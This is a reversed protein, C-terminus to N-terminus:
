SPYEKMVQEIAFMRYSAIVGWVNVMRNALECNVRRWANVTRWAEKGVGVGGVGVGAGNMENGNSITDSGDCGSQMEEMERLLVEVLSLVLNGIAACYGILPHLDSAEHKSSKLLVRSMQGMCVASRLAINLHRTDMQHLHKLKNLLRNQDQPQHHQQEHQQQRPEHHHQYSQHEQQNKQQYQHQQQQYQQPQQTPHASPNRADLPSRRRPKQSKAHRSGMSGTSGLTTSAMSLGDNGPSVRLGMLGTNSFLDDGVRAGTLGGNAGFRYYPDDYRQDLGPPLSAVGTSSGTEMSTSLNWGRMVIWSSAWEDRGSASGEFSVSRDEMETGFGYSFPKPIITQEFEPMELPQARDDYATGVEPVEEEVQQEEPQRDLGGSVMGGIAGEGVELGNNGGQQQHQQQQQGEGAEKGPKVRLSELFEPHVVHPLLAVCVGTHYVYTVLCLRLPVDEMHRTREGVPDPPPPLSCLPHDHWLAPPQADFILGSHSPSNPLLNTPDIFDNFGNSAGNTSPTASGAQSSARDRAAGESDTCQAKAMRSLAHKPFMPDLLREPDQVVEMMEDPVGKLWLSLKGLCGRLDSSLAGLSSSCNEKLLAIMNEWEDAEDEEEEEEEQGGEAQQNWGAFQMADFGVGGALGLQLLFSASVDDKEGSGNGTNNNRGFGGWTGGLDEFGMTASYRKGREGGDEPFVLFGPCGGRIVRLRLARPIHQMSDTMAEMVRRAGDHAEVGLELILDFLHSIETGDIHDMLSILRTEPIRHIMRYTGAAMSCYLDSTICTRLVYVSKTFKAEEEKSLKNRDEISIKELGLLTAMRCGIGTLLKGYEVDGVAIGCGALAIVAIITDVDPPAELVQTLQERALRYFTRTINLPAKPQGMMSTIACLAYRYFSTHDGFSHRVDQRCFPDLPYEWNKWFFKSFVSEEVGRPDLGVTRLEPISNMKFSPEAFCASIDDM